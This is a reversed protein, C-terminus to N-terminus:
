RDRRARGRASKTDIWPGLFGSVIPTNSAVPNPCMFFPAKMM